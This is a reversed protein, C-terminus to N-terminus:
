VNRGNRRRREDVILRTRMICDETTDEDPNGSMREEQWDELAELQKLSLAQLYLKFFANDRLEMTM